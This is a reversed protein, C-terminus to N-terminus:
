IIDNLGFNILFIYIFKFSFAFFFFFYFDGSKKGLKLCPWPYFTWVKM